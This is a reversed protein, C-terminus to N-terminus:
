INQFMKLVGQRNLIIGKRMKRQGGEDVIGFNFTTSKDDDKYYVKFNSTKFFDERSKTIYNVDEGNSDEEIFVEELLEEINIIGNDSYSNIFKKFENMTFSVYKDNHIKM